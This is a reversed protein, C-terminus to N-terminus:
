AAVAASSVAKSICTGSPLGSKGTGPYSLPARGPSLLSGKVTRASLVYGLTM